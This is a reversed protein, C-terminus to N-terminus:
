TAAKREAFYDILSNARGPPVATEAIGPPAPHAADAGPIRGARRRSRAPNAQRLKAAGRLQTAASM